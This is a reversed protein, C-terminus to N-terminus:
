SVSTFRANDNETSKFSYNCNVVHLAQMIEAHSIQDDIHVNSCGVNSLRVSENFQKQNNSIKCPDKSVHKKGKDHKVLQSIGSASISFITKCCICHALSLSNNVGTVWKFRSEWSKQYTSKGM